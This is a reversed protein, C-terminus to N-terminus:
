FPITRLKSAFVRPNKSLALKTPKKKGHQFISGTFISTSTKAVSYNM